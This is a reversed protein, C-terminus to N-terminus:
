WWGSWRLYNYFDYGILDNIGNALVPIHPLPTLPSHGHVSHGALYNLQSMLFPDQNIITPENLMTAESPISKQDVLTAQNVVSSRKSPVQGGSIYIVHPGDKKDKREGFKFFSSLGGNSGNDTHHVNAHGGNSAQGLVIITPENNKAKVRHDYFILYFFACASLIRFYM